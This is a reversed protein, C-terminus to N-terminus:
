YGVFEGEIMHLAEKLAQMASKNKDDLKELAIINVRHLFLKLKEEESM